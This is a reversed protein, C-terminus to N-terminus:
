HKPLNSPYFVVQSLKGAQKEFVWLVTHTTPSGITVSCPSVLSSSVEKMVSVRSSSPVRSGGGARRAKYTFSCGPTQPTSPSPASCKDDSSVTSILHAQVLSIRAGRPSSPPYILLLPSSGSSQTIGRLTTNGEHQEKDNASDSSCGTLDAEQM